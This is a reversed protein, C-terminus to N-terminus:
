NSKSMMKRGLKLIMRNPSLLTSIVLLQNFLGTVIRRKGKMMARYGQKAVAAATMQYLNVLFSKETDAQKAFGTTTVGPCLVTATVGTGRVEESLAETFSLVYAKTACYVAMTPTPAFSGTSGVNMVRGSKRSLMAPLFLRTLQTLAQVNVQLMDITKQDNANAFLGSDGFGANNVLIDVQLNAAMVEEYLAKPAEVQSLDKAIVTAKISYQEELKQALDEMTKQSRAVLILNHGKSAMVQALELGIGSSAGTILAQGKEM